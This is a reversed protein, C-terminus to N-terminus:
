KEGDDGAARLRRNPQGAYLDRYFRYNRLVVYVFERTQEIGISEVFEAPDRGGQASWEEMHGPGANYSAVAKETEGGYRQLLQALYRAGLRINTEPDYLRRRSVPGGALRRATGPMLQMLGVAGAPSVAESEFRSEQRMLAAVLYPDLGQRRAEREIHSWYPRPYLIEWADRPLDELRYRWYEPYARFLLETARAYRQQAFALRARALAIEPHDGQEAAVGLIGGALELLGLRELVAAKDVWARREPSLAAATPRSSRSTLQELWSPFADGAGAPAGQLKAFLREAQQAAYDRPAWGRLLVLLREALPEEGAALALRARWYLARPLFPSSSFQLLHEELRRAAEGTDGARYTLWALRWHADALTDSPAGAIMRRFYERAAAADGRVLAANAAAALAQRSWESDPFNNTLYALDSDVRETYGTHLDCRVRYARFEGGLEPPVPAMRALEECAARVEGLQFLAATARLRAQSRTPEQSRVSLDLYDSRAGRFARASWLREARTRRLAESPAPYQARLELRLEALLDNAPAAEPSLPFNYYLSNLTEAAAVPNGAARQARGLALLPPPRNRVDPIRQLFEAAEDARRSRVFVDARLARAADEHPSGSFNAKELAALGAELDGSEIDTRALYFAATDALWASAVAARFRERAANWRQQEFDAFGLAFAAEAAAKRDDTEAAFRALRKYSEASPHERLGRALRRLEEQPDDDAAAPVTLAVGLAAALLM